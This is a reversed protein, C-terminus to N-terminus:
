IVKFVIYINNGVNSLCVRASEGGLRVFGPIDSVALSTVIFCGEDRMATATAAMRLRTPDM